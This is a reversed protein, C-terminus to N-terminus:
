CAVWAHLGAHFNINSAHCGDGGGHAALADLAHAVVVHSAHLAVHRELSHVDDDLGVAVASASGLFHYFLGSGLLLM